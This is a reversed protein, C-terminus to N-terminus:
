PAGWQDRVPVETALRTLFEPMRKNKAFNQVQGVMVLKYRARTLAVNMRQRSTLFGPSGTRVFSLIVLDAQQGQFRDVTRLAVEAKVRGTADRFVFRDYTVTGDGLERALSRLLERLRSEQSKAAASSLAM